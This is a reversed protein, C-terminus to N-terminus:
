VNYTPPPPNPPLAVVVPQPPMQPHVHTMPPPLYESVVEVNAQNDAQAPIDVEARPAPEVTGVQVEVNANTPVPAAPVNDQSTIYKPNLRKRCAMFIIIILLGFLLCGGAAASFGMIIPKLGVDVSSDETTTMTTTTTTVELANCFISQHCLSKDQWTNANPGINFNCKCLRSRIKKGRICAGWNGWPPCNAFCDANTCYRPPICPHGYQLCQCNYKGTCQGQHCTQDYSWKCAAHRAM